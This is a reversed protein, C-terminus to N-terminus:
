HLKYSLFTKEEYDNVLKYVVQDNKLVKKISKYLKVKYQKRGQQDVEIDSYLKLQSDKYELEFQEIKNNSRLVVINIQDDTNNRVNKYFAELQYLNIIEDDKQIIDGEQEGISIDYQIAETPIANMKWKAVFLSGGIICLITVVMIIKKM